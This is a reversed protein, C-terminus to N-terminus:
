TVTVHGGEMHLHICTNFFADSNYSHVRGSNETNNEVQLQSDACESCAICM